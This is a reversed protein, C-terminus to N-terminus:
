NNPAGANVWARIKNRDCEPLLGSQPMPTNTDNTRSVLLGLEAYDRVNEYTSLPTSEQVTGPAHCSLCNNAILPKIYASYSIATTDCSNPDIGYLEQENDFYCGPPVALLFVLAMLSGLVFITKKM